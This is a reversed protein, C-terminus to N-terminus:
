ASDVSSSSEVIGAYVIVAPGEMWAGAEDFTVTLKGGNLAVTVPQGVDRVTHAVFASATAGTGSAPTEGVGREWIRARITTEDVIEVFEVNTRNPFLPDTEIIPGLETVPATAVDDVFTVAHPNGISLPHLDVGAISLTGTRYTAPTGVFAKVLDGRIEVPHDGVVTRVTFETSGVWGRQHALRAICRMGNGCMEAEGGDANWYRMSVIDSAVPEIVLIGDAGVGTRRNCWRITDASDPEYPGDFVIFDNGLGHVKVFDV